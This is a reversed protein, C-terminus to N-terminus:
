RARVVGSRPSHALRVLADRSAVTMALPNSVGCWTASFDVVVLRDGAGTVAANYEALNHVAQVAM